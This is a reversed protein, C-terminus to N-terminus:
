LAGARRLARLGRRSRRRRGLGWRRGTGSLQRGRARLLEVTAATLVFPDAIVRDESLSLAATLRGSVEAVLIPDALPQASDLQALRLLDPADDFIAYRLTVAAIPDATAIPDAATAAGDPTDTRRM